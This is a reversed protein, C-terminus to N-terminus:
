WEVQQLSIPTTKNPHTLHHSNGGGKKNCM